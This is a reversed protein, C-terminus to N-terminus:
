KRFEPKIASLTKGTLRSHIGVPSTKNCFRSRYRGAAVNLGKILQAELGDSLALMRDSGSGTRYRSARAAFLAIGCLRM